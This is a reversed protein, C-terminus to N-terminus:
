GSTTSRSLCNAKWPVFTFTVFAILMILIMVEKRLHRLLTVAKEPSSSLSWFLSGGERLRSWAEPGTM